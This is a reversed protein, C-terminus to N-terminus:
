ERVFLRAGVFSEGDIADLIFEALGARSINSLLGMRLNPGARVSRTAPQNTLRPPKVLTWALGSEVIQREQELRDRMVAPQRRAALACLWAFPVTRNGPGIMAGTQCVIRRAENGRMAALIAATAEACFADVYPPRPGIVCCVADAADVTEAVRSTKSFDGSIIMAGHAAFSAASQPRALGRVLWGRTMAAKAVARGTQGTIGFVALTRTPV